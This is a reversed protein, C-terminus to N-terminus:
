GIRWMLPIFTLISRVSCCTLTWHRFVSYESFYTM